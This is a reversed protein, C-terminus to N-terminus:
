SQKVVPYEAIKYAAQKIEADVRSSQAAGLTVKQQVTTMGSLVFVVVYDGPPLLNFIYDGNTGSSTERKGQLNPSTATVLVGPLGAGGETTVKGTLTAMPIAQGLALGAALFCGLVSLGRSTFRSRMRNEVELLARSVAAGPCNWDSESVKVAKM